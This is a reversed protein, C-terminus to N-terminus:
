FRGKAGKDGKDGKDGKAGAAAEDVWDVCKKGDKNVIKLVQGLTVGDATIDPLVGGCGGCTGGGKFITLM